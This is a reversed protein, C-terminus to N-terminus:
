RIAGDVNSNRPPHADLSETYEVADEVAPSLSGSLGKKLEVWEQYAGHIPLDGAHPGPRNESGHRKRGPSSTSLTSARIRPRLHPGECKALPHIHLAYEGEKGASDTRDTGKEFSETIRSKASVRAMTWPTSDVRSLFCRNWNNSFLRLATPFFCPVCFPYGTGRYEHLVSSLRKM